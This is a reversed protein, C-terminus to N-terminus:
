VTNFRDLEIKLKMEDVYKQEFDFPQRWVTEVVSRDIANNLNKAGHRLYDVGGDVM